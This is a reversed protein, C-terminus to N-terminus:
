ASVYHKLFFEIFEAQPMPKAFFYGQGVDCSVGQLYQLHNMTEVGECVVHVGIKHAMVITTAIIEEMKQNKDMSWLFQRDLKLTQVPLQALSSLSSSGAGFDDMALLFGAECLSLLREVAVTGVQNLSTETVEIELCQHPVEYLEVMHLFRGMFDQRCLTVRSFNVAVILEKGTEKLFQKVYQCAKELMYFDLADIRGRREFLPIFSDPFVMKGDPLQWRVLSEAGTITMTKLDMQPQLYVLFEENALAKELHSLYYEEDELTSLLKSDYWVFPNDGTRPASRHALLTKDTISNILEGPHEVVYAGFRFHVEGPYMPSNMSNVREYLASQVRGSLDPWSPLLAMFNDAHIRACIGKDECVINLAEGMRCLLQDGMEYGYHNNLLKFQQVDLRVMTYGLPELRASELMANAQKEFGSRALLNTLGDREVTAEIAKKSQGYSFWGICLVLGMCVCFFITFKNMEGVSTEEVYHVLDDSIEFHEKSLAYIVDMDGAGARYLFIQSKLEIWMDEVLELQQDYYADNTEVSNYQGTGEKLEALIDDVYQITDNDPTGYLEAAVVKQTAGRVLGTYNIIHEDGFMRVLFCFLLVTSCIWLAAYFRIMKHNNMELRAAKWLYFKSM